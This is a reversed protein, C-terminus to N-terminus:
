HTIQLHVHGLHQLLQQYTQMLYSKLRVEQMNSFVIITHNIYLATLAKFLFVTILLVGMWILIFEQEMPLGLAIIKNGIWDINQNEFNMILSVYPAILGLGLLDLISSFLFLLILAPLKSRSEGVLYLIEILYQYASKM